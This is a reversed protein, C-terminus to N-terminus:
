TSLFLDCFLTVKHFPLPYLNNHSIYILPFILTVSQETPSSVSQQSSQQVTLPETKKRLYIVIPLIM